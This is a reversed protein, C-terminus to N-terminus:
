SPPGWHSLEQLDPLHLLALLPNKGTHHPFPSTPASPKSGQSWGLGAMTAIVPIFPDTEDQREIMINKKEVWGVEWFLILHSVRFPDVRFIILFYFVRFIILFISVVCLWGLPAQQKTESGRTEM